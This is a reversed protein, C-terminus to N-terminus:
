SNNKKKEHLYMLGSLCQIMLDWVKREDTYSKKQINSKIISELNGGNIDFALITAPLGNNQVIRGNIEKAQIKKAIELDFPIIKTKM